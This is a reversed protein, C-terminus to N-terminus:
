IQRGFKEFIQQKFVSIEAQVKKKDYLRILPVRHEYTFYCGPIKDNNIWIDNNIKEFYEFGWYRDFPDGFKSVIVDHWNNEGPAPTECYFVTIVLDTPDHRTNWFGSPWEGEEDLEVHHIKINLLMDGAVCKFGINAGSKDAEIPLFWLMKMNLLPLFRLGAYKNYAVGAFKEPNQPLQGYGYYYCYDLAKLEKQIFALLEIIRQQYDALVRYAKRVNALATGMEWQLVTM